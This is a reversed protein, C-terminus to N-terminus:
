LQYLLLDTLDKLTIATIEISLSEYCNCINTYTRVETNSFYIHANETHGVALLHHFFNVRMIFLDAFTEAIFDPVLCADNGLKFKEEIIREIIHFFDFLKQFIRLIRFLM